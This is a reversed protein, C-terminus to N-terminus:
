LILILFVAADLAFTALVILVFARHPHMLTSRAATQRAGPADFQCSGQDPARRSGSPREVAVAVQEATTGLGMRRAAVAAGGNSAGHRNAGLIYKTLPPKSNKLGASRNESALRVTGTRSADQTHMVSADDLAVVRGDLRAPTPFAPHFSM